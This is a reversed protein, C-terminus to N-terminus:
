PQFFLPTPKPNKESLVAKNMLRGGTRGWLFYVFLFPALHERSTSTPLPPGRAHGPAVRELQTVIAEARWRPRRRGEWGRAEAQCWPGPGPFFLSKKGQTLTQFTRMTQDFSLIFAKLANGPLRHGGDPGESGVTHKGTLLPLSVSPAMDSARRQGPAAGAQSGPSILLVAGARGGGWATDGAGQLCPVMNRCLVAWLPADRRGRREEALRLIVEQSTRCVPVAEKVYRGGGGKGRSRACERGSEDGRWHRGTDAGVWRRPSCM